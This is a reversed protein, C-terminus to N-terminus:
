GPAGGCRAVCAVLPAGDFYERFEVVRGGVVRLMDTKAVTIVEGTAHFRGTGRALAVAFEGEVIIREIEYGTLQVLSDLKAYYADVGARGRWTGAWPLEASGHSTWVIDEALAELAYARNGRGYEAYIAEVRRRTEATLAAEAADTM